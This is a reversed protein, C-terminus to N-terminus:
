GRLFDSKRLDSVTRVGNDTGTPSPQIQSLPQNARPAALANANQKLSASLQQMAAMAGQPNGRAFEHLSHAKLPNNALEYMVDVTNEMHNALPVLFPMKTLDLKAVKDEFDPYKEKATAIKSVFSEVVDTAEKEQKEQYAQQQLQQTHKEIGEAVMREIDTPTQQMGSMSPTTNAGYQPASYEARAREAAEAKARGVLENVKSQPVMKEAVPAPTSAPALTSTSPATTVPEVNSESSSPTSIGETSLGDTM